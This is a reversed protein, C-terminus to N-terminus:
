TYKVVIFFFHSFDVSSEKKRWELVLKYNHDLDYIYSLNIKM